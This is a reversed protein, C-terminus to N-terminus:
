QLGFWISLLIFHCLFFCFFRDFKTVQLGGFINHAAAAVAAQETLSFVGSGGWATTIANVLELLPIVTLFDRRPKMGATRDKNLL